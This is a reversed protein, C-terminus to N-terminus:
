GEGLQDILRIIQRVQYAKAKGGAGEQLVILAMTGPRKYIRHSGSASRALTWGFAEALACAELFRLGAPNGRARSLLEARSMPAVPKRRVARTFPVVVPVM